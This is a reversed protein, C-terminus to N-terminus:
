SAACIAPSALRPTIATAFTQDHAKIVRLQRHACKEHLGLLLHHKTAGGRLRDQFLDLSDTRPPHEQGGPAGEALKIVPWQLTDAPCEAITM